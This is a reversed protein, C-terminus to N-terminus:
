ASHYYGRQVAAVHYSATQLILFADRRTGDVPLIFPIAASLIRCAHKEMTKLRSPSVQTCRHQLEGRAMSM